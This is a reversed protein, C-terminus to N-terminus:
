VRNLKVYDACIIEEEWKEKMKVCFKQQQNWKQNSRIRMKKHTIHFHTFIVFIIWGVLCLPVTMFIKDNSQNNWLIKVKTMFKRISETWLMHIRNLSHLLWLFIIIIFIILLLILVKVWSRRSKPKSYIVAEGMASAREKGNIVWCSVTPYASVVIKWRKGNECKM